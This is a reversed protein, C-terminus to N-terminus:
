VKKLEAMFLIMGIIGFLILTWLWRNSRDENNSGDAAAMHRSLLQEAKESGNAAAIRLTDIQATSVRERNNYSIKKVANLYNILSYPKQLALQQLAYRDAVVEDLTQKKYHGIEHQLVFEREEASLENWRARNIVIDGTHINVRAPNSPREPFTPLFQISSM